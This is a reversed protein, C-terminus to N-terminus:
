SLLQLLVRGVSMDHKQLGRLQVYQPLVKALKRSEKIQKYKIKHRSRMVGDTMMNGM